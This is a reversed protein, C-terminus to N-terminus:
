FIGSISDVLGMELKPQAVPFDLNVKNATSMIRTKYIKTRPKSRVTIKVDVIGSYNVDKVANDAITSVLGGILGGALMSGGDGGAVAGIAIGTAAGEITGGYGNAMMEKAATKSSKGVQLLNVQLVYHARAPHAEVRYGKSQLADVLGPKIEFSPKDTTNHVQVFITKDAASNVPDMFISKSMLTQTELNRHSIATGIAACGSLLMIFPCMILLAFKKM